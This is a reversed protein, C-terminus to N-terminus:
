HQIILDLLLKLDVVVLLEALTLLFLQLKNLTSTNCRELVICLFVSCASFLKNLEKNISLFQVTKM